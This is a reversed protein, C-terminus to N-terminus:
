ICQLVLHHSWEGQLFLKKFHQQVSSLSPHNKALYNAITTQSNHIQLFWLTNLCWSKDSSPFIAVFTLKLLCLSCAKLTCFPSPSRCFTLYTLNIDQSTGGLPHTLTLVSPAQLPFGLGLSLPPTMLPSHPLHNPPNWNLVPWQVDVNAFNHTIYWPRFSTKLRPWLCTMKSVSEFTNTWIRRVLKHTIYMFSRVQHELAHTLWAQM